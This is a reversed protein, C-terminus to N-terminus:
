RNTTNDLQPRTAATTSTVTIDGRAGITHVRGAILGVDVRTIADTTAGTARARLTYTGNPVAVFASAAKYAIPGGIATETGTTQDKVFLTMPSSNFITNVFRVYAVNYDFNPIFPDEVYFAEAKKTTTNYLGSIYMSYAKGDELTAPVSAIVLDKDVTASIRGSLTYAGPAIASYFGNGGGGTAGSGVGTTAEAGTASLIATMKADNAYFNVAPAGVGFNFFKVRAGPLASTIDQVANKDCATLAVACLLMAM